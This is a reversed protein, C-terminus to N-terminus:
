KISRVIHLKFTQRSLDDLTGYVVRCQVSSLKLGLEEGIQQIIRLYM